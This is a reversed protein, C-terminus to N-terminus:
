LDHCSYCFTCSGGSVHTCQWDPWMARVLCTSHLDDLSKRDGWFVAHVRLYFIYHTCTYRPTYHLFFWFKKTCYNTFCKFVLTYFLAVM